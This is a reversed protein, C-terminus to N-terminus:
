KENLQEILSDEDKQVSWDYDSRLFDMSETETENSKTNKHQKIQQVLQSQTRHLWIIYLISGLLSIALILNTIDTM